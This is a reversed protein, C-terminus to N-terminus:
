AHNEGTFEEELRPEWPVLVKWDWVSSLAPRPRNSEWRRITKAASIKGRTGQESMRSQVHTGEQDNSLWREQADLDNSTMLPISLQLSVNYVQGM